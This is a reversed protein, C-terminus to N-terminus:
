QEYRKKEKPLWNKPEILSAIISIYKDNLEFRQGIVKIIIEDGERKSSFYESQYHHDRAIFVIVPSPTIKIEARIGAKTINKIICRFKMGEVPHCVLCEFMVDFIIDNGNVIGSSYTIINITNPKVFGENICKGEFRSELNEHILQEINSGIDKFPLSLKRTLVNKMYLKTNKRKKSLQVMKSM